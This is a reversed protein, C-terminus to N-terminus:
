WNKVKQSWNKNEKYAWNGIRFFKLKLFIQNQTTHIDKTYKESYKLIQHTSGEWKTVTSNYCLFWKATCQLILLFIKSKLQILYIPAKIAFSKCEWLYVLTDFHNHHVSQNIVTVVHRWLYKKYIRSIHGQCANLFWLMLPGKATSM